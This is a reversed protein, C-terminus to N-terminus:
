EEAQGARENVKVYLDDFQKRIDDDLNSYGGSDIAELIGLFSRYQYKKVDM